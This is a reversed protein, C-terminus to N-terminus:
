PEEPSIEARLRKSQGPMGVMWIWEGSPPPAAGSDVRRSPFMAQVRRGIISLSTPRGLLDAPIPRDYADVLSYMYEPGLDHLDIILLPMPESLPILGPQLSTVLFPGQSHELRDALAPLGFMRLQRALVTQMQLSLGPRALQALGLEASEEDTLQIPDVQILFGHRGERQSDAPANLVYTEIVRLLEQYADANADPSAGVPGGLVFTYLGYGPRADGYLAGLSNAREIEVGSPSPYYAMAYLVGAEFRSDAGGGPLVGPLVGPDVGALGGDWGPADVADAEDAARDGVEYVVTAGSGAGAVESPGDRLADPADLAQQGTDRSGPGAACGIILALGMLLTLLHAHRM